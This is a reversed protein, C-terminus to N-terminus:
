SRARRNLAATGLVMDSLGQGRRSTAMLVISVIQPFVFAVSSLYGLTHLLATTSDLREGRFNRLEIAMLRMGPTASTSAITLFRYLFSVILAIIGYFFLGIGFTFIVVILSIVSILIMDVLWAFARKSAVDQYFERQRDPDPLGWLPEHAQRSYM